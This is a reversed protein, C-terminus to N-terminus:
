RDLCKSSITVIFHQAILYLLYLAAIRSSSFRSNCLVPFIGAKSLWIPLDIISMVSYAVISFPVYGIPSCQPAVVPCIMITHM